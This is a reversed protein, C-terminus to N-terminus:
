AFRKASSVLGRSTPFQTAGEVEAPPRRHMTIFMSDDIKTYDFAVATPPRKASKQAKKANKIASFFRISCSFLSLKKTAFKDLADDVSVEINIEDEDKLAEDLM